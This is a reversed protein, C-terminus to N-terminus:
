REYIREKLLSTESLHFIMKTLADQGLRAAACLVLLLPFCDFTGTVTYVDRDCVTTSDQYVLETLVIADQCVSQSLIYLGERHQGRTDQLLDVQSVSSRSNM